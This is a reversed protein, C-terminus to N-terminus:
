ILISPDNNEHEIYERNHQKKISVCVNLEIIRMNPTFEVNYIYILNDHLKGERHVYM